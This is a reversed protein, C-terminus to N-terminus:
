AAQSMLTHHMLIALDSFKRMQIISTDFVTLYSVEISLSPVLGNLHPASNFTIFFQSGNADRGANAMSLLGRGDHNLM